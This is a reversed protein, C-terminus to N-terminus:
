PARRPDAGPDQPSVENALADRNVETQKEEVEKEKVQVRDENVRDRQAAAIKRDYETKPKADVEGTGKALEANLEAGFLLVLMTYYMWTLLILVGGITGYTKNLTDFNVVYTRFIATAALWLVATVVAGILIQQRHQPFDPLVTYMLWIAFVLSLFALPYQLVMWGWKAVGPLHVATAVADVINPGALMITAVIGVLVGVVFVMLVRLGQVKLFPRRDNKVHFAINLANILSGFIRSASWLTLIAGISVLGPANPAFVVDRAIGALLDFASPPVTEAIRDLFWGFLRQKDGVLGLLPAAFLMLPFLSFFFNYAVAAAITLINDNWFGKGANKLLQGVHYGRIVM